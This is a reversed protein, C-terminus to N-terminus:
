PKLRGLALYQLNKHTRSAPDTSRPTNQHIRHILKTFITLNLHEPFLKQRIESFKSM